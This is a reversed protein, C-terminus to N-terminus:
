VIPKQLKNFDLKSLTVPDKTFRMKFPPIKDLMARAEGM